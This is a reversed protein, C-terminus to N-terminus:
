RNNLFVHLYKFTGGSGGGYWQFIRPSYGSGINIRCRSKSLDPSRGRSDQLLM